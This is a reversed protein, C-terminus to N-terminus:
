KDNPLTTKRNGTTPLDELITRAYAQYNGPGISKDVLIVPGRSVCGYYLPM